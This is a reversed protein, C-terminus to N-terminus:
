VTLGFTQVDLGGNELHGVHTDLRVDEFKQGIQGLRNFLHLILCRPQAM